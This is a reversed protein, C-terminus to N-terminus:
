FSKLLVEYSDIVNSYLELAEAINDNERKQSSEELYLNAVQKMDEKNFFIARSSIALDDLLKMNFAVESRQTEIDAIVDPNLQLSNALEQPNKYGFYNNFIPKYFSELEVMLDDWRAATIYEKLGKMHSLGVRKMDTLVLVKKNTNIPQISKDIIKTGSTVYFEDMM